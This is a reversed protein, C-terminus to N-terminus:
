LNRFIEELKAQLEEGRLNKAIIKGNPDILLNQPISTIRYLKAVENNWFKLDSVHTWALQDQEIAKLWPEKSRDLSVGLVTFKKDKYKRFSAVVNPNEVRCPGCWSAWFDVLVYQGRFSSLSVMKGSTDAQQFDVADTGVAGIKNEMVIGGVMRGYYSTRANEGLQSFRVDLVEPQQLFSYLLYLLLPTVPSERNAAIYAEAKADLDAILQRAVQYLSDQRGAYVPSNLQKGLQDLNFFFPDFERRFQQFADNTPSGQVRAQQLSDAHGQLTIRSGDLFIGLQRSSGGVTLVYLAPEAITGKLEFKGKKVAAKAIAENQPNDFHLTVEANDAAGQLTGNITFSQQAQLYLSCLLSLFLSFTQKM